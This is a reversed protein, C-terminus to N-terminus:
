RSPTNSTSSESASASASTSGSASAADAQATAAEQEQRQKADLDDFLKQWKPFKEIYTRLGINGRRIDHREIIGALDAEAVPDPKGDPWSAFGYVIILSPVHLESKKKVLDKDYYGAHHIEHMDLAVYFRHRWYEESDECMAIHSPETIGRKLVKYAEIHRAATLWNLRNPAVPEAEKGNGTLAEYARSLALVAQDLHNKSERDKRPTKIATWAFFGSVCMAVTSVFPSLFPAISSDAM